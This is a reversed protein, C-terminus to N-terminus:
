KRPILLFLLCVFFCELSTAGMFQFAAYFVDSKIKIHIHIRLACTWFGLAFWYGFDKHLELGVCNLSGVYAAAHLKWGLGIARESSSELAFPVLSLM